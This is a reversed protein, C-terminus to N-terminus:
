ATVGALKAALEDWTSGGEGIRIAAIGAAAAAALGADSDEFVLADSAICGAHALVALFGEPSPKGHRVDDATIVPDFRGSLGLKELTAEATSRAASTCLALRHHAAARNVFASAGAVEQVDAMLTRAAARKAAVLATLEAASASQGAGALLREMAAATTLGAVSAYDVDIGRPALAAAFAAAHVPSTDALTGDLDFIFLRRHALLREPANV